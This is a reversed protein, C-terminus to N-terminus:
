AITRPHQWDNFVGPVYTLYMHYLGNHEIVDPAWFTYDKNPRYNINATDLYKWDASDKSAAIGIRTGHVWKVTTDELSARRNTYLMWWEKKQKNWIVVPDAAGHFVPDDFLPKSAKKQAMCSSCGIFLLVIFGHLRNM